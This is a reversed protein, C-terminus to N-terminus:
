KTLKDFTSMINKIDKESHDLPSLRMQIERGKRAIKKLESVKMTEKLMRHIVKNRDKNFQTITKYEEKKILDLMYCIECYDRLHKRKGKSKLLNLKNKDSKFFIKLKYKLYAEIVNHILSIAGVFCKKKLTNEIVDEFSDPNIEIIKVLENIEQEMDEGYDLMLVDYFGSYDCNPCFLRHNFGAFYDSQQADSMDEFEEDEEIMHTKCKPCQITSNM